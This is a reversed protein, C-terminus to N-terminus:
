MTLELVVPAAYHSRLMSFFLLLLLPYSSSSFFFLFSSPFSPYIHHLFSCLSPPLFSSRTNQVCFESAQPLILCWEFGLAWIWLTCWYSSWNISNYSQRAGRLIDQWNQFPTLDGSKIILVLIIRLYCRWFGSSIVSKLLVYDIRLYRVMPLRTYTLFLYPIIETISNDTSSIEAICGSLADASDTQSM